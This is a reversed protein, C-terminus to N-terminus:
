GHEVVEGTQEEYAIVVCECISEGLSMTGVQTDVEQRDIGSGGCTQCNPNAHPIKGFFDPRTFEEFTVSFGQNEHIDENFKSTSIMTRDSGQKNLLGTAAPSKSKLVENSQM